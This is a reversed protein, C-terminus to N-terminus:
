RLYRGRWHWATGSAVPLETGGEYGRALVTDSARPERSGGRRAGLSPDLAGVPAVNDRLGNSASSTRFVAAM